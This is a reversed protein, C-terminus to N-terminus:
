AVLLTWHRPFSPKQTGGVIWSDLFEPLVVSEGPVASLSATARSPAHFRGRIAERRRTFTRAVVMHRLFSCLLSNHRAGPASAVRVKM